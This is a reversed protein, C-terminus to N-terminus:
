KMISEAFAKLEDSSSDASSDSSDKPTIESSDKHDTPSPLNPEALAKSIIDKMCDDPLESLGRANRFRLIYDRLDKEQSM